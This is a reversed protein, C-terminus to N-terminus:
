RSVSNPRAAVREERYPNGQGYAILRARTPVLQDQTLSQAAAEVARSQLAVAEKFNGVNAQAAALVELSRYDNEGLLSLAKEAAAVSRSGDRFHEVPCTAMLWALSRYAPGFKQDSQLASRYNRVADAYEGSQVLVDGRAVFASVLGPDLQLARNLDELALSNKGLSALVAGRAQYFGGDTPARRIAESFDSVAGDLDGLDKFVEGRNFWGNAFEPRIRVVENFDAMAEAHRRAIAYSVGRNHRAKWHEGNLQVALDFQGLAAAERGREVLAEGLRNHSWGKLDEAYKRHSPTLSESRLARELLYVIESYDRPNKAKRSKVYASKILDQPKASQRGPQTPGEAAIEEASSRPVLCIWLLCLVIIRKPPM